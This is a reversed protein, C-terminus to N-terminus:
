SCMEWTPSPAATATMQTLVMMLPENPPMEVRRHVFSKLFCQLRTLLLCKRATVRVFFTTKAAALPRAKCNCFCNLEFSPFMPHQLSLYLKADVHLHVGHINLANLVICFHATSNQFKGISVHLPKNPMQLNLLDLLSSKSHTPSSCAFSCGSHCHHIHHTTPSHFSVLAFSISM